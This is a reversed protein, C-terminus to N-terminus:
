FRALVRSRVEERINRVCQLLRQELDACVREWKILEAPRNRRLMDLENRRSALAREFQSLIDVKSM